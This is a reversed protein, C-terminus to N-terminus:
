FPIEEVARCSLAVASMGCERAGYHQQQQPQQQPQGHGHQQQQKKQPCASRIHGVEGCKYCRPPGFKRAVMATELERANSKKIDRETALLQRQADALTVNARGRLVQKVISYANPLGALLAWVIENEDYDGGASRIENWIARGRSFYSIITENHQLTIVALDRKLDAIHALSKGKFTEELYAWAEFASKFGRLSSLHYDAVCACIILLADANRTVSVEDAPDFASTVVSWLGHSILILQILFSWNEYNVETLKPVTSAKQLLGGAKQNMISETPVHTATTQAPARNASRSGAGRAGSHEPQIEGTEAGSM